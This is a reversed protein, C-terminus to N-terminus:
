EKHENSLSGELKTLKANKEALATQVGTLEKQTAELTKQTESLGREAVFLAKEKDSLLREKDSLATKSDSLANKTDSLWLGLVFVLCGTLIGAWLTSARWFSAKKTLVDQKRQYDTLLLKYESLVAPLNQSHDKDSMAKLIDSTSSDSMDNKGKKDSM